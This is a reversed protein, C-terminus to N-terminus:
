EKQAAGPKGGCYGRVQGNNFDGSLYLVHQFELLCSRMIRLICFGVGVANDQDGRWGHVNM